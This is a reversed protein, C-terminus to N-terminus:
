EDTKKLTEWMKKQELLKIELERYRDALEKLEAFEVELKPNPVMIAMRENMTKLTAKLSLGDIEIDSETIKVKPSPSQWTATTGTSYTLGAGSTLTINPYNTGGTVPYTTSYTPQKTKAM